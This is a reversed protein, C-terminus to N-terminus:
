KLEDEIEKILSDALKSIRDLDELEVILRNATETSARMKGLDSYSMHANASSLAVSQDFVRRRLDETRISSLRDELKIRAARATGATAKGEEIRAKASTSGLSAGKEFWKFAEALDM